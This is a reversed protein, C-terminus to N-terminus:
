EVLEHSSGLSVCSVKPTSDRVFAKRLILAPAMILFPLWKNTVTSSLNNNSTCNYFLVSEHLLRLARNHPTAFQPWVIHGDDACRKSRLTDVTMVARILIVNHIRALLLRSFVIPPRRLAHHYGFWVRM